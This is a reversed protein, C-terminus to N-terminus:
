LGPRILAADYVLQPFEEDLVPKVAEFFFSECQDLGHIFESVPFGEHVRAGNRGHPRLL